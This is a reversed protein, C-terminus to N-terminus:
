YQVRKKYQVAHLCTGTTNVVAVLHDLLLKREVILADM